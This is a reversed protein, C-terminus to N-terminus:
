GKAELSREMMHLMIEERAAHEEVVRCVNDIVQQLRSKKDLMEEQSLGELRAENIMSKAKSIEGKIERHELLLAQMLLEGFLPPLVEEEFGFHNKLGEDLFNMSQQLKKQKDVLTDISSQIWGSRVQQLSFMAELDGVSDGILKIHGRIYRHEEIVRHIIALNDSM